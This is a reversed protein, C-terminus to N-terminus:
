QTKNEGDEQSVEIEDLRNVFNIIPNNVLRDQESGWIVDLHNYDRLM